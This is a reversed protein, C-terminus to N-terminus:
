DKKNAIYETYLEAYRTLCLDVGYHEYHLVEGPQTLPGRDVKSSREVMLENVFVEYRGKFPDPLRGRAPNGGDLSRAEWPWGMLAFLGKAEDTTM